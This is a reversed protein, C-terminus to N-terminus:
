KLDPVLLGLDILAGESKLAAEIFAVDKLAGVPNGFPEVGEKGNTANFFSGLEVEVGRMREEVVTEKKETTLVAKVFGGEMSISVYGKTGTVVYADKASVPKSVTPFAFSMEITGNYHESAKAIAHITDHPALYDKNLSAFSSLHTIPQPLLVRLVAITHVGGDLLFGGQYEPVTRWPTKYYKSDKDVYNLVCAKFGIVKGIAGNGILKGVEQIGPEVEYNEAVRWVLGKGQFESRYQKILTVGSAVDPAVPKESLVHKGAKLAKLIVSPQLPIPLVLLVSAIDERALVADMGGGNEGDHYVDPAPISLAKGVATSLSEASKASRSYVAKLPPAAEGLAALAPIYAETAFIGAGFIAFGQRAPPTM